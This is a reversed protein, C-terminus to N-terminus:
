LKKFIRQMETTGIQTKHGSPGYVEMRNLLARPRDIRAKVDALGQLAAELLQHNRQLVARLNPARRLSGPDRELRALLAEKRRVIQDLEELRGHLITRREAELLALLAESPTSGNQQRTQRAAPPMM